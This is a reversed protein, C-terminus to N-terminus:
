PATTAAPSGTAPASSPALTPTPPPTPILEPPVWWAPRSGADLGAAITLPFAAGDLTISTQGPAVRALWLDTVGRDIELYAIADGIPSWVPGFSRDDATVRLLESGSANLIVVDTGFSTTRTAAIYRGSQAYVPTTYGPGTVAVAKGTTTDYRMVVPAGRSGDRGNQVYLLYRGDPSWSPDQHGLPATEPLKLNTLKKTGLDYIQLVVDLKTPDPGDTVFAVRTGDPSVAPQRIFYSWTLNGSSIRGTLLPEPEGEGDARVRMLTPTALRFRRTQGSIRWRGSEATTRVFYIWAGDPSFTPMADHGGSTLQAAVAQRQIWVNGAKIYALTGPVDARPDVIVVDSPTATRVPGGNGSSGPVGPLAPLNGTLLGVSLAAIIVLGALSLGPALLGADFAGGSRGGRSGQRRVTV